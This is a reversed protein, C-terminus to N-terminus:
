RWGLTAFAQQAGGVDDIREGRLEDRGADGLGARGGAPVTKVDISAALMSRSAALMVVCISPSTIGDSTGPLTAIATRRWASHHQADRRPVRRHDEAHPRNRHRQSAAVRHHEFAGFETGPHM